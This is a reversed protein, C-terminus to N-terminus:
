RGPQRRRVPIRQVSRSPPVPADPDPGGPGTAGPEAREPGSAAVGGEELAARLVAVVGAAQDALRVTLEPREGRLVAIVVCVPCVACTGGASPGPDSRLRHLAPEVRDLAGLALARLEVSLGDHGGCRETGADTM